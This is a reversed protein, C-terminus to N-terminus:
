RNNQPLTKIANTKSPQRTQAPVRVLNPPQQRQRHNVITARPVRRCLDAANTQLRNPIPHQAEVGLPGLAQKVPLRGARTWHKAALVFPRQGLDDFLTWDRSRM